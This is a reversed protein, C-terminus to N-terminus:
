GTPLIGSFATQLLAFANEIFYRQPKLALKVFVWEELSNKKYNQASPLYNKLTMRSKIM